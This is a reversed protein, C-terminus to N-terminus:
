FPIEVEAQEFSDVGTTPDEFEVKMVVIQPTNRTNGDRDTYSDASMFGEISAKAGNPIKEPAEARKSFVIPIYANVYKGDQTKKSVGVSYRHFTGNKGEIDKRWIRASREIVDMVREKRAEREM